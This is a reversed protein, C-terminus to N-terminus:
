DNALREPAYIKLLEIAWEVKDTVRQGSPQSRSWLELNEIRNDNRVGNKHHVNETPLLERGLFEAMVARHELKGRKMVYGDILFGDGKGKGALADGYKRLRAYHTFCYGKANHKKECGEVLCGKSGYPRTSLETATANGYNRFRRYHNSCYTLAFIGANCDTVECTTPKNEKRIDWLTKTPDGTARIRRYHYNCYGAILRDKTKDCNTVLCKM